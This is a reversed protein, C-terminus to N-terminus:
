AVWRRGSSWPSQKPRSGRAWDAITKELADLYRRRTTLDFKLGREVRIRLYENPGNRAFDWADEEEAELLSKELARLSRNLEALVASMQSVSTEEDLDSGRLNSLALLIEMRPVDSAAYAEQVEHWLASVHASGDARLDPHLRRVLRRYLEKVRGDVMTEGDQDQDHEQDQDDKEKQGKEKVKAKGLRAGPLPTEERPTKFMHSKFVEFTTTYADDDMKDPNTGLFKQVWEQFLAEQEFESVKRAAGARGSESSTRQDETEVGPNERRFMIRQYASQPSQFLRRMEMEVERVLAQADRIQEELGRAESLIAGFERARWRVFAPRDKREFRHWSSRVSDLRDMAATCEAAITRRLPEQDILIIEVAATRNRPPAASKRQKAGPRAM